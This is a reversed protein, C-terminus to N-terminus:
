TCIHKAQTVGYNEGRDFLGKIWGYNLMTRAYGKKKSKDPEKAIM